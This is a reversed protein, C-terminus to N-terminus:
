YFIQCAKELLARREGFRARARAGDKTRIIGVSDVLEEGEPIEEGDEPIEVTRETVSYSGQYETLILELDGSESVWKDLVQTGENCILDKRSVMRSLTQM